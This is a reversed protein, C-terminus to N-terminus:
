LLLNTELLFLFFIIKKLATNNAGSCDIKLNDPQVSLGFDRKKNYIVANRIFGAAM